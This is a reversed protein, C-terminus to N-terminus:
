QGTTFLPVDDFRGAQIDEAFPRSTASTSSLLAALKKLTRSRNFWLLLSVILSTGQMRYFPQAPDFDYPHCYTWYVQGGANRRALNRVLTLPLYRLYIGGLYPVTFPGLQTVPVPLELLNNQWRFAQRPAGPFGYLPNRAPLVSSSYIFGADALISLAWTTEATLSFSPARFGIVAQGCIDELRRKGADCESRFRDPNELTLPVHHASHFGIEHGLSAIKRILVPAELAVGGVVFITGRIGSAALRDLLHDMVEIHRPSYRNDPRPDELDLTFTIATDM